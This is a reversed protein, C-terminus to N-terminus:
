SKDREEDLDFRPDALIYQGMRGPAKRPPRKREPVMRGEVTDWFSDAIHMVKRAIAGLVGTHPVYPHPRSPAVEEVRALDECLTQVKEDDLTETLRDVLASERHRAETLATDVDTWIGQWGFRSEYSSGYEHGKAHALVVELQRAAHLYDHVVHRGDEISRRAAPLLVADVAHLHKSAASLFEDIRAYGLRPQDLVEEPPGGTSRLKGLRESLDDHTRQVSNRLVDTTGM